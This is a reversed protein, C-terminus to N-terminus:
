FKFGLGGIGQIGRVRYNWYRENKQNFLNNGEVFVSFRPSISYDARASLDIIPNLTTTHGSQLNIARIGGLFNANATILWKESPMFFNNLGIEWEPRHWASEMESLKYHFYNATAQLKYLNEYNWGLSAHYNLVQTIDDYILQFKTSDNENNGYFHMNTFEGFKFGAKYSLEENIEGQVGADIQYNQLTNRLQSSPGLFPNEMVFGYYTNRIVDGEYEAYLGFSESLNYNAFISPFIHFDSKKNPIVDNELVVNAGAKVRFDDNSYEVYPYFKVYNRNIESYTADSPSSIFGESEIGGQLRSNDSRFGLHVRTGMEHERALYNDNFLKLSLSAEYNFLELRNIKRLGVRGYVTHFIQSIDEPVIELGPAPTYGYFNHRDRDYGVKGFFEVNEQFLSGDFRVNTHDEASNKGDVPGEYFGQHKILVGFNMYDSEVNNIYLEGLPSQYNGYGVKLYSHFLPTKNDIFKKQFPQTDTVVPNLDLFFNKVEYTYNGKSKASPLVPTKEFVRAQKPLTLVRDKRIIFEADKIEGREQGQTDQAM